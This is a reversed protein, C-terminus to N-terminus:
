SIMAALAKGVFYLIVASGIISIAWFLPSIKTKQVAGNIALDNVKKFIEDQNTQIIKTREDIRGMMQMLEGHKECTEM